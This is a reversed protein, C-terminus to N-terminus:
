AGSQSKEESEKAPKDFGEPPGDMEPMLDNGALRLGWQIRRALEYGPTRKGRELDHWQQRGMNCRRAADAGTLGLRRRIALLIPGFEGPAPPAPSKAPTPPPDPESAPMPTPSTKKRAM